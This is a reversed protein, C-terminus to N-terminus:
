LINMPSDVSLVVYLQVNAFLGLQGFPPSLSSRGQGNVHSLRLMTECVKLVNALVM